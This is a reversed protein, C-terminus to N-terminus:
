TPSRWARSWSRTSASPPSRSRPPPKARPSRHSRRAGDRAGGTRGARHHDDDTTTSEAEDLAAEFDDELRNQAQATRIGTGWLQYAVFLLILVGATICVHTRGGRPVEGSAHPPLSDAPRRAKTAGFPGGYVQGAGHFGDDLEAPGDREQAPEGGQGPDVQLDRGSLHQQEAARVAGPLGRQEAAAGPEHGERSALRPHEPVIEGVAPLRAGQAPPDAQEAM